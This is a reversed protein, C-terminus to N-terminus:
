RRLTLVRNTEHKHCDIVSLELTGFVVSQSYKNALRERTRIVSLVRDTESARGIRSAM